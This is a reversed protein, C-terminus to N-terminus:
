HRGMQPRNGDVKHVDEVSYRKIACARYASRKLRDDVEALSSCCVDGLGDWLVYRITKGGYRVPQRLKRLTWGRGKVIARVRHETSMTREEENAPPAALPAYIPTAFLPLRLPASCPPLPASELRSRARASARPILPPVCVVAASGGCAIFDVAQRPGGCGGCLLWRLAVAKAFLVITQATRRNTEARVVASGGCSRRLGDSPM